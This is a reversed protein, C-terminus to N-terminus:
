RSRQRLVPGLGRRDAPAARGPSSRCPADVLRLPPRCPGRRQDPQLVGSLRTARGALAAGRRDPRGRRRLRPAQPGPVLLWAANMWAPGRWCRFLHWGAHFSPEEMSVSPIGHPARYRWRDLLHDEILRVAIERPLSPLALLALSSWTSVKLPTHDRGALDWFLGRREDWCHDLLAQETRDARLEYTVDGSLRALARMSMAYLVNVLVDEVHEDYRNIIARSDYRLRRSRQV